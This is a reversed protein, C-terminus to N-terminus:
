RFVTAPEVRLVKLISVLSSGLGVLVVAAFAILLVPWPTWFSLESKGSTLTGFLAM